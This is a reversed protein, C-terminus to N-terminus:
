EGFNKGRLACLLVFSFSKLNGKHAKTDKTTFVEKVKEPLFFLFKVAFGRLARLFDKREKHRQPENM